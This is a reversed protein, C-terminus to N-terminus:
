RDWYQGFTLDYALISGIKSNIQGDTLYVKWSKSVEVGNVPRTMTLTYTQLVNKDGTIEDFVENLVEVDNVLLGSIKFTLLSTNKFGKIAEVKRNDYTSKSSYGMVTTSYPIDQGNLYFKCEDALTANNIVTISLDLTIVFRKTESVQFDVPASINFLYNVGGVNFIFNKNTFSFNTMITHLDNLQDYWANGEVHWGMLELHVNQLYVNLGKITADQNIGTDMILFPISPYTTQNINFSVNNDNIYEGTNTFFKFKFAEDKLTGDPNMSDPTIDGNGQLFDKMEIIKEQIVDSIVDFNIIMEEKNNPM